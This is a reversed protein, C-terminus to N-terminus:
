GHTQRGADVLPPHAQDSTGYRIEPVATLRRGCCLFRGLPSRPSCLGPWLVWCAILGVIAIGALVVRAVVTLEPPPQAGNARLTAQTHAAAATLVLVAATFGPEAMTILVFSTTIGLLATSATATTWAQEYLDM